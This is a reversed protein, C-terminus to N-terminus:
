HRDRAVSGGPTSHSPSRAGLGRVLAVIALGLADAVAWVAGAIVGVLFGVFVAGVGIGVAIPILVVSGTVLSYWSALGALSLLYAAAVGWLVRRRVPVRWVMLAIGSAIGALLGVALLLFSASLFFEDEPGLLFMM